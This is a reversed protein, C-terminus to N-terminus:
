YRGTRVQFKTPKDVTVGGRTVWDATWIVAQALPVGPYGFLHHALSADSLLASPQEEGTFTPEVGLLRGFETALGRISVTEPGTANLVRPPSECWSLARLAYANADGQWLVNVAGTTLDVPTEDRVATAVEVLVGYRLEISYNLRYLLLRLGLRHSVDELLRERALCSAAYEGLPETADRENAGGRTLERLGYVNGTSFAVMRSDRYRRGLHGALYGNTAWTLHEGGATGFKRGVMYVINAADPLAEIVDDDLLDVSRTRVGAAELSERVDPESFRSVATVRRDSGAEDLARRAMRALTPGMKGAAGLVLIDGDLAALDAVVGPSPRSLLEELAPVDMIREPWM